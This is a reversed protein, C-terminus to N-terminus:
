RGHPLNPRLRRRLAGAFGVVGTGLLMLSGPEPVPSAEAAVSVSDLNWYDAVNASTFSLDTSTGTALATFTLLTQSDAPVNTESLITTGGFTASFDNPYGHAPDADAGNDLVFEITYTTGAVTNLTQFLTVDQFSGLFAGFSGSYPQSGDVGSNPDTLATGSWGTFDGTEFGCNTVINGSVSSCADDAKASQAVFVSALFLAMVALSKRM